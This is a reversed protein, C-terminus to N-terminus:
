LDKLLPVEVVFADDSKIVNLKSSTFYNLQSRINELGIGTSNEGVDKPQLNNSITISDEKDFIKIELPQDKSIINHKIANELLLQLTLPPILLNKHKVDMSVLLSDGFRLKQLGIYSELFSLEQGLSVLEEKQVELVYRYIKSLKQIFETAKDQDEHVLNSLTNFSNFLFHPNLQNKLSQYQGEFKDARMKESAIAASRWEFLFARSTFILTIFLSILIAYRTRWMLTQWPLTEFNHDYFSVLILTSFLLSVIFAFLSVATVEVLLRKLPNQIWSIRQDTKDTIFSIGYSLTFSILFSYIFEPWKTFFASTGITDLNFSITIVLAIILNILILLRLNKYYKWSRPANSNYEDM